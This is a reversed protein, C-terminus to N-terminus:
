NTTPSGAGPGSGSGAQRLVGALEGDVQDFANGVQSASDGLGQIVELTKERTAKWNSAFEQVRSALGPHGVSEAIADATEQASSFANQVVKLSAGTEQLLSTDVVLRDM